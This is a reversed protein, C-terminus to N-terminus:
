QQITGPVNFNFRKNLYEITVPETSFTQDDNASRLVFNTAQATEEIHKLVLADQEDLQVTIINVQGAASTETKSGEPVSHPWPGVQLVLVNQLTTQTLQYQANQTSSGVINVNYTVLLDVRDGAQIAEAVDSGMSVGFAVAVKGPELLLAANSKTEKLDAKDILMDTIIPEGTYIPVKSLKGIVDVPKNYAGIPTPIRQPWDVEGVQDAAIESREGIPQFAIVVKTTPVEVPQPEAAALVVFVALGSILALVIGLIIFVRGGRRM